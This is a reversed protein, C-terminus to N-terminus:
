WLTQESCRHFSDCRYKWVATFCTCANGTHAAQIGHTRHMRCHRTTVAFLSVTFLPCPFMNFLVFVSLLFFSLFGGFCGIDDVVIVLIIFPVTVTHKHHKGANTQNENM